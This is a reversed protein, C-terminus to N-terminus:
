SVTPRAAHSRHARPSKPRQGSVFLALRLRDSVNLKRFVSTLHAKVTAETISLQGAIEKNNAGAGVLLAIQRERPALFEFRTPLTRGKGTEDDSPTLSTIRRLLHPVVGRGIWIEGRHVVDAAKRVLSPAINRDCYGRAGAVLAFVAQRESPASALVVIRASPNVRQVDPVGDVGHLGPLATDLFVVLDPTHLMAVELSERDIAEILPLSGTLEEAWRRRLGASASALLVTLPSSEATGSGTDRAM